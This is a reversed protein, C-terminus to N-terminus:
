EIELKYIAALREAAPPSIELRHNIMLHRFGERIVLGEKLLERRAKNAASPSTNLFLKADEWNDIIMPRGDENTQLPEKPFIIENWYYMYLLKAVSSLEKFHDDYFFRRPILYYKKGM